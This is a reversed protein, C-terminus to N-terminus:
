LMEFSHIYVSYIPDDISRLFIVKMWSEMIKM